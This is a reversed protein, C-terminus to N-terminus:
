SLMKEMWTMAKDITRTGIKNVIPSAIRLFPEWQQATHAMKIRQDLPKMQEITVGQKMQQAKLTELEKIIRPLNDLMADIGQGIGLSENRNRILAIQNKVRVQWNASLQRIVLYAFTGILGYFALDEPTV